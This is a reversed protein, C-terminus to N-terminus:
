NSSNPAHRQLKKKRAADFARRLLAGAARWAAERGVDGVRAEGLVMEALDRSDPVYRTAIDARYFAGHGYTVTCVIEPTPVGRTRAASSAALERAPRVAGLRVYRDGLLRAVAGGRRYHRVVIDAGDVVVRFADGRGRFARAEPMAAAATYLTGHEAVLTKVPQLAFPLAVISVGRERVMVYGAPPAPRSM